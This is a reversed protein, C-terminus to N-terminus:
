VWLDFNNFNTGAEPVALLHEFKSHKRFSNSRNFSVIFPYIFLFLYHVQWKEQQSPFVEKKSAISLFNFSSNTSKADM